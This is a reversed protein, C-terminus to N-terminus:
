DNNLGKVQSIMDSTAKMDALVKGTYPDQLLSVIEEKTVKSSDYIVEAKENSRSVKAILVGESESIMKAIGPGCAACYMGKIELVLHRLDQNDEDINVVNGTASRVSCGSLVMGSLIFLAIIIGYPVKKNITKIGM